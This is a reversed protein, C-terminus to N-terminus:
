RPLLHEPTRNAIPLMRFHERGRIGKGRSEILHGLYAHIAGSLGGGRHLGLATCAKAITFEFGTPKDRLWQRVVWRMSTQSSQASPM